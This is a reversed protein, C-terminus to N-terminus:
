TDLSNLLEKLEVPDINFHAQIRGRLRSLENTGTNDKPMVDSSRYEADTLGRKLWNCHRCLLHLNSRKNSGGRSFPIKHDITADRVNDFKIRCYACEWSQENLLRSLHNLRASRRANIKYKQLANYERIFPILAHEPPLADLNLATQGSLVRAVFRVDLNLENAVKYWVSKNATVPEPSETRIQLALQIHQKTKRNIYKPM